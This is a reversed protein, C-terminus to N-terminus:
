FNIKGPLKQITEIFGHLSTTWFFEEGGEGGERGEGVEGEERGERGDGGVEGVGRVKEM